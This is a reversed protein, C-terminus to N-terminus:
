LLMLQPLSCHSGGDSEGRGKLSHLEKTAGALGSDRYIETSPLYCGPYLSAISGEVKDSKDNTEAM